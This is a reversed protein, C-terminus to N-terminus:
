SHSLEVHVIEGNGYYVPQQGTLLVFQKGVHMTTRLAGGNELAGIVESATLPTWDSLPKRMIRLRPSWGSSFSVLNGKMGASPSNGVVVGIQCGELANLIARLYAPKRVVMKLTHGERVRPRAKATHELRCACGCLASILSLGVGELTHCRQLLRVSLVAINCVQGTRHSGCKRLHPRMGFWQECASICLSDPLLQRHM